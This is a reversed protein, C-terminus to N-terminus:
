QPTGSVTCIRRLTAGCPAPEYLIRVADCVKSGATAGTGGEALPLISINAATDTFTAGIQLAADQVNNGPTTMDLLDSKSGAVVSGYGWIIYAAHVISPYNTFSRKVSIWYAKGSDKVVKLSFTGTSAPDDFRNVRYMGSSTVTQIHSNVWGLINKYHPNFDAHPDNAFNAGMTDFVDGYETNHGNPSIPDGDTVVWLGAHYLGFTHGLEHAVVRFDYEGNVWVNRGGVQALGGYTITSGTINGLNQFLVVVRDYDTLVYDAAAATRADTHLQTNAGTTAYQVATQPMRYLQTTATNTLSAQNYSSAVYYPSIVSDTFSQVYAGTYVITGRMPDGPLDSFDVRIILVRVNGITWGNPTPGEESVEQDLELLDSVSRKPYPGLGTEAAELKTEAQMLQERTAFRYITEGVEGLV